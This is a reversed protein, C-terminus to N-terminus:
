QTVTGTRRIQERMQQGLITLEYAGMLDGNSYRSQEMLGREVLSRCTRRFASQSTRDQGFDAAYVRADNTRGAEVLIARQQTTLPRIPLTTM